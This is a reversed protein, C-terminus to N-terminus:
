KTDGAPPEVVIPAALYEIGDTPHCPSSFKQGDFRVHIYHLDSRARTIVGERQGMKIRMGVRAPVGYYNRVYDYCDPQKM